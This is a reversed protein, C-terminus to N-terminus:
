VAWKCREVCIRVVEDPNRMWWDAASFIEVEIPGAYGASDMARRIGAIDIVGDGMMGRDLLLDRTPVLWDSVHFGILRNAGARAIEAELDPDWWVHYVDVVIGIGPGLSECLHNAASMTNLCSRDAALMPHLPELALVVGAGRAMPLLEELTEALQARMDSLSTQGPPLGGPFVMLCAAGIEAAVEIARKADEVAERRSVEDAALFPGARNLGTVRMDHDILLSKAVELGCADLKDRWVAIGSLSHRAYGEVSQRFDWQPRTTAQNISIRSQDITMPRAVTTISVISDNRYNSRREM